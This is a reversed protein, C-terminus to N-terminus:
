ELEIEVKTTANFEDLEDQLANARKQLETVTEWV